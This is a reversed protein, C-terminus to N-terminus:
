AARMPQSKQLHNNTQRVTKINQSVFQSTAKIINNVQYTEGDESNITHPGLLVWKMFTSLLSPMEYNTFKGQFEWKQELVGLRIKKALKWLSRVDSENAISDMHANLASTQTSPSILQKPKNKQASKVVLLDPLNM